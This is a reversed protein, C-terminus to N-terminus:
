RAFTTAHAETLAEELSRGEQYGAIGPPREVGPVLRPCPEPAGLVARVPIREAWIPLAYDEEDDGIGKARIKASAAEITMGIVRTAAIEQKTAPRLTAWRGPYFRNIMAALARM